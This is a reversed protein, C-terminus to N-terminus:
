LEAILKDIMEKGMSQINLNYQELYKWFTKRPNGFVKVYLPKNKDTVSIVGKKTEAGEKVIRYSVLMDQKQPDMYIFEWGVLVVFTGKDMISFSLPMEEITLELQGDNLKDRLRKTNAYPIVASNLYGAPVSPNLTSLTGFKWKWYLLLPLIQTKRKESKSLVDEAWQEKTKITLYNAPRPKNTIDDKYGRDIWRNVKATSYCGAFFICCAFLFCFFHRAPAQLLLQM